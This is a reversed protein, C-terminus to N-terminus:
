GRLPVGCNACLEDAAYTGTNTDSSSVFHRHISKETTQFKVYSLDKTCISHTKYIYSFVKKTWKDM